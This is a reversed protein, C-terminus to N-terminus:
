RLDAYSPDRFSPQSTSMKEILKRNAEKEDALQEAAFLALLVLLVWKM